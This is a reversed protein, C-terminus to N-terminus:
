RSTSRPSPAVMLQVLAFLATFAAGYLVGAVTNPYDGLGIANGIGQAVGTGYRAILWGGVGGVIVVVGYVSPVLQKRPQVGRLRSLPSSGSASGTVFVVALVVLVLVAILKAGRLDVFDNAASGAVCLVFMAAYVWWPLRAARRAREQHDRVTALAAAAQRQEDSDDM